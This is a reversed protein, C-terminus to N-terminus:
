LSDNTDQGGVIHDPTARAPWPEGMDELIAECAEVDLCIESGGAFILRIEGALMQEDHARFEVALLSLVTGGAPMQKQKVGLVGHFRVGVRARLKAAPEEWKYRNGVFAFVHQDRLYAMDTRKVLTDQLLSSALAFEDSGQVILKLPTSMRDRAM